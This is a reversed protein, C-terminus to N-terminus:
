SKFIRHYPYHKLDLIIQSICIVFLIFTLTSATIDPSVIPIALTAATAIIRYMIWTRHAANNSFEVATLHLISQAILYMTISGCMLWLESYGLTSGGHESSSSLSLSVMQKIGVGVATLAVVLPFHIYLWIYYIGVRGKERVARIASGSASDFYLWWLSFSISLGLGIVITSHTNLESTPFSSSAASGIVAGVVSEGLVIITLLGMREPLHSIDPAFQSHLKGATIPTAFDVILGIVWFIFRYPIPIFASVLWILAGCSFGKVYRRVLPNGVATHRLARIYQLVLIFRISAYSLAFAASTQGFAESLNIALAAVAIMQLLTLARHVLDDTTFRTSYFTAGLWSWWIPVFLAVFALFSSLSLHEDDLTHGVQSIVVVFILDYFLELWTAHREREPKEEKKIGM